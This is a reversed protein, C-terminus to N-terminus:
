TTSKRFRDPDTSDIYQVPLRAPFRSADTTDIYLEPPVDTVVPIYDNGWGQESAGPEVGNDASRILQAWCSQGLGSYAAKQALAIKHLVAPGIRQELAHWKAATLRDPFAGANFMQGVARALTSDLTAWPQNLENNNEDTIILNSGCGDQSEDCIRENIKRDRKRGQVMVMFHRGCAPCTVSAYSNSGVTETNIVIVVTLPEPLLNPM